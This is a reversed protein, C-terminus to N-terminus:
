PWDNQPKDDFGFDIDRDLCALFDEKGFGDAKKLAELTKETKECKLYWAREFNPHNPQDLLIAWEPLANTEGEGDMYWWFRAKGDKGHRHERNWHDKLPSHKDWGHTLSRHFAIPHIYENTIGVDRIPKWEYFQEEENYIEVDEHGPRRPRSGIFHYFGHYSDVVRGTGWGFDFLVHPHVLDRKPPDLEDPTTGFFPITPPSPLHSKVREWRTIHHYTCAFRIRFLWRQYQNLYSHFAEQDIALHPSICQLMWMLAATAIVPVTILPLATNRATL